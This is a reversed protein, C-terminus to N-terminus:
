RAHEKRVEKGVGRMCRIDAKYGFLRCEVLAVFWCRDKYGDMHLMARKWSVEVTSGRGIEADLEM